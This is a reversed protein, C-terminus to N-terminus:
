AKPGTRAGGEETAEDDTEGNQHDAGGRLEGPRNVHFQRGTGRVEVALKQVDAEHRRPFGENIADVVSPDTDIATVTYGADVLVLALPYGVYGCGIVAVTRARGPSTSM